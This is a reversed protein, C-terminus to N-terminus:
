ALSDQGEVVAVLWTTSVPVWNQMRLVELESTQTPPEPAKVTLEPEGAPDVSTRCCFPAVVVLVTPM